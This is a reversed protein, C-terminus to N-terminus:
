NVCNVAIHEYKSLWELVHLIARQRRSATKVDGAFRREDATVATRDTLDAEARDVVIPTQIPSIPKPKFLGVNSDAVVRAGPSLVKM